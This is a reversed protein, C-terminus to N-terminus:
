GILLAVCQVLDISSSHIELRTSTEHLKSRVVLTKLCAYVHKKPSFRDSELDKLKFFHTETPFVVM